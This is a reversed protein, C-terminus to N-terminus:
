FLEPAPDDAGAPADDAPTAQADPEAARVLGAIEALQTKVDDSMTTVIDGAKDIASKSQTLSQKIRRVEALTQTAREVAALIASGDVEGAEGRRMLVRARALAYAVQLSLPGEDPDYTVLLKDGNYERLPLTRAPLKDDSPVVLVAFDANRTAMAQDLEKLAAPRTLQRNKAEFVIRGQGPGEALGITVVIDGTKRAGEAVDGVAHADDGQPAAIVDLAEAVAEEYTRGKATGREAEAAVAGETEREAKLAQVELQLATLTQTMKGLEERQQVGTDRLTTITARKFENLPNRDDAATFQRLLDERMKATVEAVAARVQHQVADTSGEGFHRELAKTVVGTEAGFATELHGSLAKAVEDGRKAFQEDLTRAREHLQKELDHSTREFAAQVFDANAATQERDLVRARVEKPEVSRVTLLVGHATRPADAALLVARVPQWVLAPYAAPDTVERAYLGEAVPLDEAEPQGEPWAQAPTLGLTNEHLLILTVAADSM